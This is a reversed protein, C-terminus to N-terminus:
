GIRRIDTPIEMSGDDAVEVPDIPADVIDIAEVTLRRPEARAEVALDALRGSWTTVAPPPGAAESPTM